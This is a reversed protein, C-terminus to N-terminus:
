ERLYFCAVQPSSFMCCLTDGLRMTHLADQKDEKVPLHSHIWYEEAAKDESTQIKLSRSRRVSALEEPSLLNFKTNKLLSLRQAHELTDIQSVPPDEKESMPSDIRTEEDPISDSLWKTYHERPHIDSSFNLIIPLTELCSTERNRSCLLITFIGTVKSGSAQKIELYCNYGIKEGHDIAFTLIGSYTRNVQFRWLSDLYASISKAPALYGGFVPYQFPNGLAEEIALIFCGM